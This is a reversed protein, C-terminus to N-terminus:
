ARNGTIVPSSSLLPLAEHVILSCCTVGGEAKVLESIDVAAVSIGREALRRATAVYAQPFIVTDGILLANAAMPETAAVDILEMGPFVTVDVWAPNVLLRNPGVQTVASKLHLCGDVAVGTVTYGYASLLSRLQALAAPNSRSTLGVYLTKGILLLDGGDMTGPPELYHLPRYRGLMAAVTVTEARRVPAGPRMIVALEELVVATDEVFVSDPLDVEAPLRQIHCGLASLLQEYEEHQVRAKSVDIPERALHTLQCDNIAPSVERTIAIPV